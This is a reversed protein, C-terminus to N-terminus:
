EITPIEECVEFSVIYENGIGSSYLDIRVLTMAEIKNKAPIIGFITETKDSRNEIPAVTFAVFFQKSM